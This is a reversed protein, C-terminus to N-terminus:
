SLASSRSWRLVAWGSGPSRCWCRAWPWAWCRATTTVGRWLPRPPLAPAATNEGATCHQPPLAPVPHDGVQGSRHTRAIMTAHRCPYRHPRPRAGNRGRHHAAEAGPGVGHHDVLGEVRMVQGGGPDVVRAPLLDEGALRGPPLVHGRRQGPRQGTVRRHVVLLVHGVVQQRHDAPVPQARKGVREQDAVGCV